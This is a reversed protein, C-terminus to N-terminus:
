YDVECSKEATDCVCNVINSLGCAAGDTTDSYTEKGSAGVDV